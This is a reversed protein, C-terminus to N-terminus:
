EPLDRGITSQTRQETTQLTREAPEALVSQMRPPRHPLRDLHDTKCPRLWRDLSPSVHQLSTHPSLAHLRPSAKAPPVPSPTTPVFRPTKQRRFGKNTQALRFKPLRKRSIRSAPAPAHRIIGEKRRDSQRGLLPSGSVFRRRLKDEGGALVDAKGGRLVGSPSVSCGFM